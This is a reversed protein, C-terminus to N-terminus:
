IQPPLLLPNLRLSDLYKYFREIWKDDVHGFFQEFEAERESMSMRFDPERGFVARLWKAYEERHEHWLYNVMAWAVPYYTGGGSYFINNDIIFLKWEQAGWKQQSFLKRVQDLRNHNITGIGGGATTLPFEFLMTTGEVLWVPISSERKLGNAPFLGINFHIHHGAEHQLTEINQHAVWRAITNRAKTAELGKASEFRRKFNQIPPWDEMDFFHSRNIDPRYFGLVGMRMPDGLANCYSEIESYKHFFYVELKHEPRKAPLKLMTIFKVNWRWVNELTTGLERAKKDPGTYVMVFHDTVWEKDSNAMKHMERVSEENKPLPAMLDDSKVGLTEPDIEVKIGDLLEEIETDAIARRRGPSRKPGAASSDGGVEAPKLEELPEVRRVRSREITMTIGKRGGVNEVLYSGNPQETVDGEIPNGQYLHIRYRGKIRNEAAASSAVVPLIAVATATLILFLGTARRM